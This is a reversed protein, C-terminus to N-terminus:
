EDEEQRKKYYKLDARQVVQLTQSSGVYRLINKFDLCNLVTEIGSLDM